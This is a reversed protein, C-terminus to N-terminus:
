SLPHTASSMRSTDGTSILQFNVIDNGEIGMLRSISPSAEPIESLLSEIKEVLDGAVDENRNQIKILKLMNLGAGVVFSSALRFRNEPNLYAKAQSIVVNGSVSKKRPWLSSEYFGYHNFFHVPIEMKSLFHIVGSSLSVHSFCYIESVQEVPVPIKQYANEFYITNEHRELMGDKTIIMPDSM